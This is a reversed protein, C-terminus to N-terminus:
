TRPEMTVTAALLRHADETLARALDPSDASTGAAHFGNATLRLEMPPVAIWGPPTQPEIRAAFSAFLSVHRYVSEVTVAAIEPKRQGLDIASEAIASLARGFLEVSLLATWPPAAPDPPGDAALFDESVRAATAIERAILALEIPDVQRRTTGTVAARLAVRDAVILECTRPPLFLGYAAAADRRLQDASSAMDTTGM